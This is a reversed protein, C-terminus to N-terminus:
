FCCARIMYAFPFVNPTLANPTLAFVRLSWGPVTTNDQIWVEVEQRSNKPTAYLYGIWVVTSKSAGARVSALRRARRCNGAAPLGGNRDQLTM